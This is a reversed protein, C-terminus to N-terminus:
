KRVAVKGKKKMVADVLMCGSDNLDINWNDKLNNWYRNIVIKAGNPMVELMAMLTALDVALNYSDYHEIDMEINDPLSQLDRIKNKIPRVFNANLCDLYMQGEGIFGSELYAHSVDFKSLLLAKELEGDAEFYAM